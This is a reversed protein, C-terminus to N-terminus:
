EPYLGKSRAYLRSIGLLAKINKVEVGVQSAIEVLVSILADLELPKGVVSDQLMSTRFAGLSATVAHRDEPNAGIPLGICSGINAMEVMCSSMFERVYQDALIKDGTAGTIASIPNVTMNGWLKFWIERQILATEEVDFNADRLCTAIKKVRQSAEGGGPEGIVIGNGAIRRITGPNPATASLHVVSGIVSSTLISAGVVGSPDLSWLNLSGAPEPLGHAFWWPIGNMASLVTTEPGVTAAIQPAVAELGTTKLAVIVLDQPGLEAPTRVVNVNHSTRREEGDVTEILTLGQRKVTDYTENRAIASVEYGAGALKAAMLGGVAGLGHITIKM